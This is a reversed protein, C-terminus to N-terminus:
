KAEGKRFGPSLQHLINDPEGGVDECCRKLISETVRGSCVPQSDSFMTGTWVAAEGRSAGDPFM